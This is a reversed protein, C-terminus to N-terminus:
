LVPRAGSFGAIGGAMAAARLDPTRSRQRPPRWLRRSGPPPRSFPRNRRAFAPHLDDPQATRTRDGGHHPPRNRDSFQFHRAPIALAAAPEAIARAQGGGQGARRAPSGRACLVVIDNGCMVWGPASACAAVHSRWNGQPPVPLAPGATAGPTGPEEARGPLDGPDPQPFRRKEAEIEVLPLCFREALLRAVRGRGSGRNGLVVVRRPPEVQFRRPQEM